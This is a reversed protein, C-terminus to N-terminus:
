HSLILFRTLAVNTVFRKVRIVRLYSIMTMVCAFVSTRGVPVAIQPILDWGVNWDYEM